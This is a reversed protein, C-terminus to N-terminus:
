VPAAEVAARRGMEPMADTVIWRGYRAGPRMTVVVAPRVGRIAVVDNPGRRVMTGVLAVWPLGLGVRVGRVHDWPDEVEDVSEVDSMPVRVDGLLSAARELLTLRLVLDNADIELRAM